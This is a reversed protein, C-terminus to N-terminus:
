GWRTRIAIAVEAVHPMTMSDVLDPSRRTGCRHAQLLGRGEEFDLGARETALRVLEEHAEQWSADDLKGLVASAMISGGSKAVRVVGSDGYLIRELV